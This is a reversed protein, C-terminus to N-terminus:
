VCFGKINTDPEITSNMWPSVPTKPNPIDGRFDRSGNKHTSGVTNKGIQTKPIFQTGKIKKTNQLPVTDFWDNEIEQPLVHDINFLDEIDKQSKKVYKRKKYTIEDDKNDHESEGFPSEMKDFNLYNKKIDNVSEYKNAMPDMPSTVGVVSDSHDSKNSNYKSVM